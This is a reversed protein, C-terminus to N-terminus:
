WFKPILMGSSAIYEKGGRKREFSAEKKYMNRGFLLTWVYIVIAWSIADQSLAAYSGYIMMEGLYNTNRCIGFWGNKILGKKAKLVFFKQTDAAMMLVVGLTHCMICGAILPLSADTRNSNISWAFYWYPLLCAGLAVIHQFLTAPRQWNPDPFICEKLCWLMGYTGHLSLYIWSTLHDSTNYHRMLALCYFLTGCKQLNVSYCLKGCPFSPIFPSEIWTVLPDLVKTYLPRTGPLFFLVM